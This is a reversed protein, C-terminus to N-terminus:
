ERPVDARGRVTEPEVPEDDDPVAEASGGRDLVGGVMGLTDGPQHEHRRGAPEGILLDPTDDAREVPVIVPRHGPIQFRRRAWAVGAVRRVTSPSLSRMGSFAARCIM